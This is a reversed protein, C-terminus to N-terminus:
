YFCLLFLSPFLKGPKRRHYTLLKGGHDRFETLDPDNIGIISGYQQVSDYFFQFYQAHTLIQLNLNPDKAVGV